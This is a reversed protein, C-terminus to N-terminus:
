PETDGWASTDGSEFGDSFIFVGLYTFAANLTASQADPNTVTVNVTGPSHAPTVATLSTSSNFIVSAAPVAGFLVTAGNVFNTGTLTVSTGGSPTGATPDISDLTPTPGPATITFNTNSIDFFVNGVCSVRVRAQATPTNPITVDQSGDNATSAALSTPFTNGGDTSLDIAVNACSVPAASTGAVNWTVTRLGSWTVATNPQTVVFPGATDNVAVTTSAWNVGGGGARNDRVTMRFTMTRTRTSMSEGITAVNNLIDSLRPFTRSPMALPVFSRFIPRVATQDGTLITTANTSSGLDFEEWM